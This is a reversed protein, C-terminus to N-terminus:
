LYTSAPSVPEKELNGEDGHGMSSAATAQRAVARLQVASSEASSNARQYDSNIFSLTQPTTNGGQRTKFLYISSVILFVLYFGAAIFSAIMGDHHKLVPVEIFMSGNAFIIGLVTLFIGCFSSLLLCCSACCPWTCPM